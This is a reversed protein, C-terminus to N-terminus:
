LAGKEHTTSTDGHEHCFGEILHCIMSGSPEADPQSRWEKVAAHLRNRLRLTDQFRREIEDLKQEVLKRVLPCPSHGKDSEGLIQKIEDVSFGLQRASLVFRLRHQDASSYEKYGNNPNKHPNLVGERTYFRVTDPTVALQQALENVRM